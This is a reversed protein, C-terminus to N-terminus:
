VGQEPPQWPAWDFFAPTKPNLWWQMVHQLRRAHGPSLAEWPLEEWGFWAVETSEGSTRAEGGVPAAAFLLVYLHRGAESGHLREDFVGLFRTIEVVYGSEEWVERAAAQAPTESVDCAGGPMAWLGNDSRRILLVRGEPSIVAAEASALPTMYGLNRSFLRQIEEPPRSDALSQLEAALQLVRRNRQVQYPDETFLLNNNALSRLEDAILALKRALPSPTSPESMIIFGSFFYCNRHFFPM